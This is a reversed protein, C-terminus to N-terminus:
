QEQQELVDRWTLIVRTSARPAGPCVLPTRPSPPPTQDSRMSPSLPPHPLLHYPVGNEDVSPTSDDQCFDPQRLSAGVHCNAEQKPKKPAGPCECQPTTTAPLTTIPM